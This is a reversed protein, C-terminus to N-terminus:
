CALEEQLVERGAIAVVFTAVAFGVYYSLDGLQPFAGAFRGTLWAYTGATFRPGHEFEAPSVAVLIAVAISLAITVLLPTHASM